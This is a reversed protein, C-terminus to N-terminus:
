CSCGHTHHVINLKGRHSTLGFLEVGILPEPWLPPPPQEAALHAGRLGLPKVKIRELSTM